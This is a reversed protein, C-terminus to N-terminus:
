IPSYRDTPHSARLSHRPPSTFKNVPQAQAKNNNGNADNNNAHTEEAHSDDDSSDENDDDQAVKENNENNDDNNDDSESNDNNDDSIYDDDEGPNEGPELSDEDPSNKENDKRTNYKEQVSHWVLAVHPGHAYETQMQFSSVWGNQEAEKIKRALPHTTNADKYSKFIIDCEVVKLIIAKERLDEMSVIRNFNDDWEMLKYLDEMLVILNNAGETTCAFSVEVTKQTPEQFHLGSTRKVNTFKPAVTTAIDQAVLPNVGYEPASHRILSSLGQITVEISNLTVPGSASRIDDKLSDVNKKLIKIHACIRQLLHETQTTLNAALDPSLDKLKKLFDLHLPEALERVEDSNEYYLFLGNLIYNTTCM